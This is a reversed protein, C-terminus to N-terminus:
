RFETLCCHVSYRLKSKIEDAIVEGTYLEAFIKTGRKVGIIRLSQLSFINLKSLLNNM